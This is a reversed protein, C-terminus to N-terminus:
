WMFYDNEKLKLLAELYFYDAYTLNVHHPAHHYDGSCHTLIGDSDRSFDCHNDTLAKLMRIAANLYIERDGEGAEKSLEILGGAAIAAATDDMWHPEKPQRFDVPILGDQPINAIFYNAARKATDLYEKKCTHKYSIIFGYLAWAQGRTWSSGDEYGQGGYTKVVEGNEPNFEVIHNSSGDPRIFVKMVTDAHLMAIQRYRPDGTESAAWYLLPINFLCDIIAWGRTDSGVLDNWARIFGGAPNFRGALLNAAHLGRKRSEENGTLRYDAVATPLWMFGVDHHLGYYDQFCQDLKKESIRAIEAFRERGTEHYMLWLLGAWFGNTWWNLGNDLSWDNRGDARDDHEGNVTTAPIKDKSKESVWEIKKMLKKLTEDLWIKDDNNLDM